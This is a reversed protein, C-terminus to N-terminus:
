SVPRSDALSKVLIQHPSQSSKSIYNTANVSITYLRCSNDSLSLFKTFQPM